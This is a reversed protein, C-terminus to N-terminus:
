KNICAGWVILSSTYTPMQM